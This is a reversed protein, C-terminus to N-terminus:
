RYTVDSMLRRRVAQALLHRLEEALGEEGRHALAEDPEIGFRWYRRTTISLDDLDVSMWCGGELQRIGEYLTHDGPFFGFAFYKQLSATSMRPRVAPHELLVRIESAFAFLGGSKVYYLPKEGFRDRALFLKRRARDLTAFAFMGNLRLPLDEGWAQYRHVLVETHSHDSHFRYGQQTLEARLEAHNYIEGNYTVWISRSANPMPQKGGAIDLISLRRHGVHVALEPDHYRSEADPGRHRVSEMM